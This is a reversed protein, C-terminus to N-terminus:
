VYSHFQQNMRRYADTTSSSVANNKFKRAYERSYIDCM